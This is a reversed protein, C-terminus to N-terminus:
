ADSAVQRASQGRPLRRRATNRGQRRRPRRLRGKTRGARRRPRRQRDTNRGVDRAERRRVVHLMILQQRQAAIWHKALQSANISTPQMPGDCARSSFPCEVDWLFWSGAGRLCVVGRHVLGSQTCPRHTQLRSSASQPDITSGADIRSRHPTTFGRLVPSNVARFQFKM